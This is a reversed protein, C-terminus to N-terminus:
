LLLSNSAALPWNNSFLRMIRRQAGTQRCDMTCVRHHPCHRPVQRLLPRHGLEAGWQGHLPETCSAASAGRPRWGPWQGVAAPKDLVQNSMESGLTPLILIFGSDYILTFPKTTNISQTHFVVSSPPLHAPLRAFSLHLCMFLGLSCASGQSTLPCERFRIPLASCPAAQEPM